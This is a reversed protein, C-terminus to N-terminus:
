MEAKQRLQLCDFRCILEAVEPHLGHSAAIQAVDHGQGLHREVTYHPLIVEAAALIAVSDSAVLHSYRVGSKRFSDLLARGEAPTRNYTKGPSWCHMLEKIAAFERWHRPLDSDIYISAIDSSEDTASLRFFMGDFGKPLRTEHYFVRGIGNTPCDLAAVMVENANMAAGISRCSKAARLEHLHQSLDTIKM